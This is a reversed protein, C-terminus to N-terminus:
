SRINDANVVVKEPLLTKPNVMNATKRKPKSLHELYKEEIVAILPNRVNTDENSMLIVGINQVEDFMDLLVELSSEHKNKM